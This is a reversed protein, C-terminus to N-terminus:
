RWDRSNTSIMKRQCKTNYLKKNTIDLCLLGKLTLTHRQTKHHAQSTDTARVVRAEAGWYEAGMGGRWITSCFVDENHLGGQGGELVFVYEWVCVTLISVPPGDGVVVQGLQFFSMPNSPVSSRLLWVSLSKLMPVCSLQSAYYCLAPPLPWVM